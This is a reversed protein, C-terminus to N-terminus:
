PILYSKHRTKCIRVRCKVGTKRSTIVKVPTHGLLARVWSCRRVRAEQKRGWPKDSVAAHASCRKKWDKPLCVIALFMKWLKKFHGMLVVRDRDVAGYHMKAKGGKKRNQEELGGSRSVAIGKEFLSDANFIWSEQLKIRTCFWCFPGTPLPEPRTHVFRQM